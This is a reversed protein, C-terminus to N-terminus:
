LSQQKFKALIRVSVERIHSSCVDSAKEFKRKRLLEIVNKHQAITKRIM